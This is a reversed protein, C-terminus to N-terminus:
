NRSYIIAENLNTDKYLFAALWYKELMFCISTDQSEEVMIKKKSIMTMVITFLKSAWVEKAVYEKTPSFMTM